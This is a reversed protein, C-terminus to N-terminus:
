RNRNAARLVTAEDIAIRWLNMSGRRDSLYYLWRGDPSWVPNWDTAADSTVRVPNSGDVAVTWVDRNASSFPHDANLPMGWYAIRLAKPSVRPWAADDGFLRRPERGGADVVWLEAVGPGRSEANPMPLSNYVIRTGDPFWAPQFGTRTLRRVSEGTRGMVFLGGGDRESRFVIQEGNPSFAPQTDAFRSDKTLNIPTQGTTSQLYIDNNGSVGSVYVVWKGDPSIHSDQAMGELLTLRSFAAQPAATPDLSNWRSWMWGVGAMAVIVLVAALVLLKSRSSSAPAVGAAGSRAALNESVASQRLDEIDNRLDTASQYRDDPDKALCRKVYRGLERPLAPNLEGLAKPTDKLIASMVSLSTDGKFPREGSAMEYLLVGLSFVDSRADVARGEAQEPSMYAVTGLIKGEGTIDSRPLATEAGEVATERLKALGFDLVKVRDQPGVIVNAPKLDRHVIGHKHAAAVANALQVAINLLRDLAFGSKPILESLPRGEVLEMAIVQLGDIDEVGYITVIGPHNLSALTRAERAFRAQREPQEAFAGTLVKLAVERGLKSDRARYVEGMGGAGIPAVVEYNGIRTGPPLRM